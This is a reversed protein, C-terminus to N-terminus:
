TSRRGDSLAEASPREPVFATALVVPQGISFLVLALM